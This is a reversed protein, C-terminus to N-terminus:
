FGNKYRRTSVKQFMACGSDRHHYFPERRAPQDNGQGVPAVREITTPRLDSKVRFSIATQHNKGQVHQIGNGQVGPNGQVSESLTGFKPNVHSYPSSNCMRLETLNDRYARGRKRALNRIIKM